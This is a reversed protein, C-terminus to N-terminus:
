GAPRRSSPRATIASAEPVRRERSAESATVRRAKDPGGARPPPPRGPRFPGLDSGRPPIGHCRSPLCTLPFEGHVHGAPADHHAPRRPPRHRGPNGQQETSSEPERCLRGPHPTQTPKRSAPHSLLVPMARSTIMATGAGALIVASPDHGTAGDDGISGAMEHSDGVLHLALSRDQQRHQRLHTIRASRRTPPSPELRTAM